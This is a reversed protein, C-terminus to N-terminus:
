GDRKIKGIEGKNNVGVHTAYLVVINGDKPCHNTFANWGTIGTFPLGALGGLQYVEGWRKQFLSSIDEDPNDHNIEDPCTCDAFMTDYSAFGRIAM